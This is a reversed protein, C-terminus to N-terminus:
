DDKHNGHKIEKIINKLQDIQDQQEKIAEILLPVMKDYHVTLYEEEVHDEHSIPAIDIVEPMVRQVEQANVGVQRADNDYGLAKATDNETFYYGGIAKIKDIPSDIRGHFDKLREDSYYATVNGTSRVESFEALLGQLAFKRWGQSTGGQMRRLQVEDAFFNIGITASYYSMADGHSIRMGYWWSNAPNNTTDNFTNWSSLANSYSTTTSRLNRAGSSDLMNTGGTQYSNSSGINISGSSITGINSLNRASDLIATAGIGLSGDKYFRFNSANNYAAGIYYYSFGDGSGLAGFGGHNTNSSGVFNLGMAWGGTNGKTEISGDVGITIPRDSTGQVTVRKDSADFRVFEGSENTSNFVLDGTTNERYISWYYTADYALVLHNNATSTLTMGATGSYNNINTINRSSDIVNTGNIQVNGTKTNLNRKAVLDGSTTLAFVDDALQTSYIHFDDTSAIGASVRIGAYWYNTASNKFRVMQEKNVSAEIKIYNHDTHEFTAQRATLDRSSNIVTTGSIALTATDTNVGIKYATGGDYRYNLGSAGGDWLRHKESGDNYEYVIDGIDENTGAMLRLEAGNYIFISGNANVQQLTANRSSDIVTTTGFKLKGTLVTLDNHASM